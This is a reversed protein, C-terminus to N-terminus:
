DVHKRKTVVAKEYGSGIEKLRLAIFKTSADEAQIVSHTAANPDYIHRLGLEGVIYWEELSKHDNRISDPYSRMRQLDEVFRKYKNKQKNVYENVHKM